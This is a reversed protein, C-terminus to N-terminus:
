SLVEVFRKLKGCKPCTVIQIHKREGDCLQPPIKVEALAATKIAQLSAEFTSITTIESLLEWKHKCFIM